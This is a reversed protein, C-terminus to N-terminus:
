RYSNYRSDATDDDFKNEAARVTQEMKKRDIGWYVHKFGSTFSMELSQQLNIFVATHIYCVCCHIDQSNSWGM